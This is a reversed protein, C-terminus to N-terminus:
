KKSSKGAGKPQGKGGKGGWGGQGKGGKPGRGKKESAQSWPAGSWPAPAVFVHNTKQKKNDRQKNGRSRRDAPADQSSGASSGVSTMGQPLPLLSTGEIKQIFHYPSGAQRCPLLIHTDWWHRMDTTLDSGGWTSMRMVLDWPQQAPWAKHDYLDEAIRDWVESRLLTDACFIVGWHEPHFTVLQSIGREYADLTAPSVEGLSVMAARFVEWCAKWAVFDGPGSLQRTTLTGEVFVQADFRHFKMHRAGHPTFLAFDAFPAHGKRIKEHLAALQVSSPTREFPPAAGTLSVHRARLESRTDPDLVEFTGDDHQDLVRSYKMRSSPTDQAAPEPPANPAAAAAPASAEAIRKFIRSIRGADGATLSNAEHFSELSRNLIGEPIAAATQLDSPSVDLHEWLLAAVTARLGVDAAISDLTVEAPALVSTGNPALGGSAEPLSGTEVPLSAM